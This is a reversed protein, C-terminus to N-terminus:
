TLLTYKKTDLLNYLVHSESNQMEWFWSTQLHSTLKGYALILFFVICSSIDVYM